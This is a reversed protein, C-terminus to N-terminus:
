GIGGHVVDALLAGESRADGAGGGMLCAAVPNRLGEGTQSCDDALLARLHLAVVPLSQRTAVDDGAEVGVGGVADDDGRMPVASCPGVVVGVFGM